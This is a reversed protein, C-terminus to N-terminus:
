VLPLYWVQNRVESPDACRALLELDEIVVGIGPGLQHAFVLGSFERGSRQWEAAIGLLDDDQSFLVRELEGARSLLIEDDAERTGDEQSTLVDIGRHRLGETVASPVHVDMYFDLAM